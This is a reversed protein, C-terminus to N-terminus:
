CKISIGKILKLVNSIRKAEIINEKFKNGKIYPILIKDYGLRSAEKIRKSLNDVNRLEGSLAVEGIALFNVPFSIKYLSSVIAICVPLDLSSDAAKTNGAVNCYVDINSLDIGAWKNLVAILMSLRRQNFFNVVRAPVGYRTTVTLAEVEVIFNRNGDIVSGRVIGAPLVEENRSIFLQSLDHVEELGKEYMKFIGIEECSGYRNKSARLIRYNQKRDGELSIVVDVLHELSRPGALDGSKTVQGILFLAANNKRSYLCALESIKRVQSVSGTASETDPFYVTQVSDIIIVEPKLNECTNLVNTINNEQFFQINESHIKLRKARHILQNLSEEATIYIININNESIHGALQLILTSKGIGPEGSLLVSSGKIFGGGLVRDFENIGIKIKKFNENNFNEIKILLDKYHATSEKIEEITSWEGCATCSGQWKTYEAKCNKCVFLNKKKM